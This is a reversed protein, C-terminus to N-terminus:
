RTRSLKIPISSVSFMCMTLLIFTFLSFIVSTGEITVNSKFVEKHELIQLRTFLPLHM